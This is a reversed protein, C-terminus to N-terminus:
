EFHGADTGATPSPSYKRSGRAHRGEITSQIVSIIKDNREISCLWVIVDGPLAIQM